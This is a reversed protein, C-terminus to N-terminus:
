RDEHILITLINDYYKNKNAPIQQLAELAEKNNIALAALRYDFYMLNDDDHLEFNFPIPIEVKEQKKKSTSMTLTIYFYHQSFLLVKGTKFIKKDIELSITKQLLSTLIKELKTNNITM